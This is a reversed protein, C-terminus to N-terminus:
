FLKNEYVVGNFLMARITTGAATTALYLRKNGYPALHELVHGRDSRDLGDYVLDSDPIWPTHQDTYSTTKTM